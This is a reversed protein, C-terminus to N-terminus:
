GCLLVFWWGVCVVGKLFLNKIYCVFVVVWLGCCVFVVVGCVVM